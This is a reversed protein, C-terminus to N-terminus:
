ETLSELCKLKYNESKHTASQNVEHGEIKSWFNKESQLGKSFLCAEQQKADINYVWLPILAQSDAAM